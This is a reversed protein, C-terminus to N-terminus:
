GPVAPPAAAAASSSPVVLPEKPIILIALFYGVIGPLFGTALTFIVYALRILTPDVEFYEGLGGLVGSLRADNRSRYLKKM